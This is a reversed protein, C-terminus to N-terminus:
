VVENLEKQMDENLKKIKAPYSFNLLFGLIGILALLKDATTIKGKIGQHHADIGALGCFTFIASFINETILQKKYNVRKEQYKAQIYKKKDEKYKNIEKELSSVKIKTTLSNTINNM